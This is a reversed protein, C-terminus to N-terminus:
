SGGFPMTLKISVAVPKGNKRAPEFRWNRLALITHSAFYPYTTSVVRVDHTTGDTGVTFAVVASGTKGAFVQTIPYIPADGRVLKPPVDYQATKAPWHLASNPYPAGPRIIPDRGPAGTPRLLFLACAIALARSVGSHSIRDRLRPIREITRNSAHTVQAHQYRVHRALQRRTAAPFNPERAEFLLM